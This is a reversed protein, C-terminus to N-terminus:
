EYTFDAVVGGGGVSDIRVFWFREFQVVRDMEKGSGREWVGTGTGRM